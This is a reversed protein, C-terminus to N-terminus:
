RFSWPSLSFPHLHLLCLHHYHCIWELILPSFHLFTDINIQITHSKEGLCKLIFPHAQTKRNGLNTFSSHSIMSNLCETEASGYLFMKWWKLDLITDLHWTTNISTCLTNSFPLFPSNQTLRIFHNGITGFYDLMLFDATVHHTFFQIRKSTSKCNWSHLLIEESCKLVAYQLTPNWHSCDVNTTETVIIGKRDKEARDTLVTKLTNNLVHNSRFGTNTENITYYQFLFRCFKDHTQVCTVAWNASPPTHVHSLMNSDCCSCIYWTNREYQTLFSVRM